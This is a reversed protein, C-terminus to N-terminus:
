SEPNTEGLLVHVAELPNEVSESAALIEIGQVNGDIDFDLIVNPTVKQAGRRRPKENLRIYLADAEPDYTIKM